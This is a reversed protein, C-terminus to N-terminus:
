LFSDTANQVKHTVFVVFTRLNSIFIFLFCLITGIATITYHNTGKTTASTVWTRIRTVAAAFLQKPLSVIKKVLWAVAQEEEEPRSKLRPMKM